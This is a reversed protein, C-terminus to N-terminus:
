AVAAARRARRVAAEDRRREAEARPVLAVYRGSVEVGSDSLQRELDGRVQCGPCTEAVAEYAHRDGGRAPEWEDARTGCGQCVSAKYAAYALAKDQDHEPWSLFRSHPVGRDHCLALEARLRADAVIM